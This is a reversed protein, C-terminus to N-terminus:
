SLFVSTLRFNKSQCVAASGLAFNQTSLIADSMTFIREPLRSLGKKSCEPTTLAHFHYSWPVRSARILGQFCSTLGRGTIKISQTHVPSSKPVLGDRWAHFFKLSPFAPHWVANHAHRIKNVCLTNSQLEPKRSDHRQCHQRGASLPMKTYWEVLGAQLLLVQLLLFMRFGGIGRCGFFYKLFRTLM